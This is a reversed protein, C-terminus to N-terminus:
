CLIKNKSKQDIDENDKTVYTKNVAKMEFEEEKLKVCEDIEM